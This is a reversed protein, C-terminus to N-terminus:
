GPIEPIVSLKRQPSSPLLPSGGPAPSPVEESLGLYGAGRLVILWARGGNTPYSRRNAPQRCTCSTGSKGAQPVSVVPLMAMPLKLYPYQMTISTKLALHCNLNVLSCYKCANTREPKLKEFLLIDHVWLWATQGLTRLKFKRLLRLDVRITM